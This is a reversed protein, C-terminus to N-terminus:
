MFHLHVAREFLSSKTVFLERMVVKLNRRSVFYRVFTTPPRVQKLQRGLCEFFLGAGM